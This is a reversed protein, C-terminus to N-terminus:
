PCSFLLSLFNSISGSPHIAVMYRKEILLIKGTMNTLYGSDAPLYQFGKFLVQSLLLVPGFVSEEEATESQQDDSCLLQHVPFDPFAFMTNQGSKLRYARSVRDFDKVSVVM